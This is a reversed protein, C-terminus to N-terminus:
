KYIMMALGVFVFLNQGGDDGYRHFVWCAMMDYTQAWPPRTGIKQARLSTQECRTPFAPIYVVGDQSCGLGGMMGFAHRRALTLFGLITVM